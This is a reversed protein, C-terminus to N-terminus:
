PLIIIEEESRQTLIAYVDQKRVTRSIVEGKDRCTLRQAFMEAVDRETTWSIGDEGTNGYPICGRYITFKRPLKKLFKKDDASMFDNPDTAFLLDRWEDYHQWINESDVWVDRVLDGQPTGSGAWDASELLAPFRYPRAHAFVFTEADRVARAAEVRKHAVDYYANLLGVQYENFVIDCLYPHSLCLFETGEPVRAHERFEPRLANKVAELTSPLAAKKLVEKLKLTMACTM